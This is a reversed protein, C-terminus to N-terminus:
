IVNIKVVDRPHMISYGGAIMYATGPAVMCTTGLFERSWRNTEERLKPDWRVGDHKDTPKVLWEATLEYRPVVPAEIVRIGGFSRPSLLGFPGFDNSPADAMM